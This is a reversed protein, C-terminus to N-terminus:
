YTEMTSFDTDAEEARGAPAPDGVFGSVVGVHPGRRSAVAIEDGEGIGLLLTRRLPAGVVKEKPLCFFDSM